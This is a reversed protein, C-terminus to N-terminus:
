VDEEKREEKTRPQSKDDPLTPKVSTSEHPQNEEVNPSIVQPPDASKETGEGTSPLLPLLGVNVLGRM